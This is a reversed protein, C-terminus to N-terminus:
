RAGLAERWRTKTAAAPRMGGFVALPSHKNPYM